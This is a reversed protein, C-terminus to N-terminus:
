RRDEIHRWLWSMDDGCENRGPADSRRWKGAGDAVNSGTALLIKDKLANQATQRQSPCPRWAAVVFTRAGASLRPWPLGKPHVKNSHALIFTRFQALQLLSPWENSRDTGAFSFIKLLMQQESTGPFAVSKTLVEVAICGMAWMDVGIDYQDSGLLVEPARYWLTTVQTTLHPKDQWHGATGDDHVREANQTPTSGTALRVRRASGFDAIKAVFTDGPRKQLLINSPKLDRHMVGEGHVSALGCCIQLLIQQGVLQMSSKLAHGLDCLCHEFILDIAFPTQIARLLHVVNDHMLSSTIEIERSEQISMGVHPRGIRIHKVAALEGVDNAGDKWMIPFVSGFSGSGSCPGLLRYGLEPRVFTRDTVVNGAALKSSGRDTDINGAATNDAALKSSGRATDSNGAASESSRLRKDTNGAALVSDGVALVSNDTNGSALKHRSSPSSPSGHRRNGGHAHVGLHHGQNGASREAVCDYGLSGWGTGTCAVKGSM